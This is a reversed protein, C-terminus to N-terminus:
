GTTSRKAKRYKEEALWLMKSLRVKHFDAIAKLLRFSPNTKGTEVRHLYADDCGVKEAVYQYSIGKKMRLETIVAGLAQEPTDSKRKSIPRAMLQYDHLQSTIM